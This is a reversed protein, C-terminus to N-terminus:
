NIWIKWSDVALGMSILIPNENLVLWNSHNFHEKEGGLENPLLCAQEYWM